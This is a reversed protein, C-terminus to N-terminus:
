YACTGVDSANTMGDDYGYAPSPEKKM